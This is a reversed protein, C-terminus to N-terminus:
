QFLYLMIIVFKVTIEPKTEHMKIEKLDGKDKIIINVINDCKTVYIIM